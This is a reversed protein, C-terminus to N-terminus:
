SRTGSGDHTPSQESGNRGQKRNRRIQKEHQSDEILPKLQDAKPDAKCSPHNFWEGTALLAAREELKVVRMGEIPHYVCALPM